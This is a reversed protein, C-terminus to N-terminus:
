GRIADSTIKLGYGVLLLALLGGLVGFSTGWGFTDALVGASVSGFSGGVMVISQTLGFGSSRVVDPLYEMIQAILVTMGCTGIGVLVSAGIIIALGGSGVLLGFGVIGLALCGIILLNRDFFDALVGIGTQMVGNIVFFVAFVTGALATSQDHFAVLFTPLFSIVAQGVFMYVVMVAVLFASEFSRLAEFAERGVEVGGDTATTETPESPQVRWYFLVFAVGAVAASAVVAHNWSYQKLLWTAGIPGLLGGAAGGLHHVGIASGVNDYTRSLLTTAVSYHMGAVTGLLVAGLVFVAFIPAVSILLCAAMTGGLAVLITTREGYKTALVGSPFQVVGYTFWMGTLTLGILGNSVGYTETIAPVLPSFSIRAVSTAFMAVACLSLVTEEYRWRDTVSAFSVV